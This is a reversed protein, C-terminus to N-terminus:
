VNDSVDTIFLNLENEDVQEKAESLSGSKVLTFDYNLESLYNEIISVSMEDKDVIFIKLRKNMSNM